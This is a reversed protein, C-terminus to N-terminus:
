KKKEAGGRFVAKGLEVPDIPKKDIYAKLAYLTAGASATVIVKKGTSGVLDIIYKKGPNTKNVLDIYEYEKRLRKIATALEEDSMTHARLASPGEYARRLYNDNDKEARKIKSKASVEKYKKSLSKYTDTISKAYRKKGAPTLTGDANQYRRVGWKMGLIGYHCLTDKSVLSGVYNENM